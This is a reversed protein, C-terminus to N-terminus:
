AAIQEALKAPPADPEGLTATGSIGRGLDYHAITKGGENMVYVDGYNDFVLPHEGPGQPVYVQPFDSGPHPETWVTKAECIQEHGNPEIFKVTLM